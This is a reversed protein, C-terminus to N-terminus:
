HITPIAPANATHIPKGYIKQENCPDSCPMHMIENLAYYIELRENIRM